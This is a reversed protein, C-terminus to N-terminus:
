IIEVIENTEPDILKVPEQKNEDSSYKDVDFKEYDNKMEKFNNLSRNDYNANDHEQQSSIEDYIGSRDIVSQKIEFQKEEKRRRRLFARWMIVTVYSYASPRFTIKNPDKGLEIAKAKKAELAKDPDFRKLYRITDELAESQMEDRYTYRRFNWRKGLNEAMKLICSGLYDNMPKPELGKREAERAQKAYKIVEETFKIDDIYDNVKNRKKDM